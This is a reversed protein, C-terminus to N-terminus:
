FPIEDQEADEAEWKKDVDAQTTAPRSQPRASGRPTMITANGLIEGRTGAEREEKSVDQTIMGNDGFQGPEDSLFLTADLYTGKKGQFLRSKDIKTVDIKLRIITKDTM